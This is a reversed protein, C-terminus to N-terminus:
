NSIRLVECHTTQEANDVDIIGGILLVRGDLLEILKPRMLPEKLSPAKLWNKRLPNYFNCDSTLPYGKPFFIPELFGTYGAYKRGLANQVRRYWGVSDVMIKAGGCNLVLSNSLRLQEPNEIFVPPIWEKLVEPPHAPERQSWTESKVDFVDESFLFDSILAVNNKDDLYLNGQTDPCNAVERWSDGVPDYIEVTKLPVKVELEIFDEGSGCCIFVRGDSLLISEDDTRKEVLDAVRKWTLTKIDLIYCDSRAGSWTDGGRREAGGAFLINGNKLTCAVNRRLGGFPTQFASWRNTKPDFIEFDGSEMLLVRGDPLLVPLRRRDGSGTSLTDGVFEWQPGTQGEHWFVWLVFLLAALILRPRKIKLRLSM